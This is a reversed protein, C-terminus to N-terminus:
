KLNTEGDLNKTEIFCVGKPESTTLVVMDAPLYENQDIRIVDGVRVLQWQSQIFSESKRDFVWVM